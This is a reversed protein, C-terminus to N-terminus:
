SKVARFVLPWTLWGPYPNNCSVIGQFPDYSLGIEARAFGVDRLDDLLPWGPVFYVLSGLTSMPNGHYAPPLHHIIEGDKLEARTQHQAHGYFPVTFIMAGEPRLVRACESLAQKYSAVHELVDFHCIMDLSSDPYSLRHVDEHRVDTDRVRHISGPACDPGVYESGEVPLGKARMMAFMPTVRELVHIRPFSGTRTESLVAHLAQRRRGNLGCKPCAIAERLNVWSGDPPKLVKFEVVANCVGCYGTTSEQQTLHAEVVQRMPELASTAREFAARNDFYQILCM